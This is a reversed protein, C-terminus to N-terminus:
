LNQGRVIIKLWNISTFRLAPVEVLPDESGVITGTTETIRLLGLQNLIISLDM